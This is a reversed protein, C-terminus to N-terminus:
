AHARIYGLTFDHDEQLAERIKGGFLEAVKKGIVPLSCRVEFALALRCHGPAVESLSGLASITVPSGVPTIRLDVASTQPGQRHCRNEHRMVYEGGVLKRAWDPVGNLDPAITRELVVRIDTADTYAERIDIRRAGLATYKAQLYAPAGYVPWLVDLSVPFDQTLSFKM